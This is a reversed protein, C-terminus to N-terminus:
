ITMLKRMHSLFIKQSKKYPKTQIELLKLGQIEMNELDELSALTNKACERLLIGRYHKAYHSIVKGNKILNDRLRSLRSSIKEDLDITNM